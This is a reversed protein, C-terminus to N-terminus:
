PKVEGAPDEPARCGPSAQADFNRNSASRRARKECDTEGKGMLHMGLALTIRGNELALGFRWAKALRMWM